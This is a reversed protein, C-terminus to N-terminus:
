EKSKGIGFIEQLLFIGGYALLGAGCFKSIGGRIGKSGVFTGLALGLPVVNDILMSGFGKVYGAINDFFTTLHEDTYYRFVRKKVESQVVSPNSMKIDELYRKTLDESKRNSEYMTSKIKGANHSDFLILGMGAVGISKALINLVKSSM